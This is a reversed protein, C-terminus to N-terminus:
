DLGAAAFEEAVNEPTPKNLYDSMADISSWGGVAMVIRPNMSQRVLLTQAYFRRLDHSSVKRWDELQGPYVSGAEIANAVERAAERVIQRVRSKEVGVYTEDEDRNFEYQAKLLEREVDEPVYADRTKGGGGTTDKGASQPVRVRYAGAEERLGTPKVAAIEQARLGVRGGLLVVTKHKLSRDSAADILADFEEPTLWCKYDNTGHTSDVDM